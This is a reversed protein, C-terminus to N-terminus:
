TGFRKEVAELMMDRIDSGRIGANVVARWAIVDRDHADIFSVKNALPELVITSHALCWTATGARSLSNELNM